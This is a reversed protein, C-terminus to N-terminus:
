SPAASVNSWQLPACLYDRRDERPECSVPAFTVDSLPSRGIDVLAVGEPFSSTTGAVGLGMEGRLFSLRLFTIARAAPREDQDSAPSDPAGGILPYEAGALSRRVCRPIIPAGRGSPREIKDTRSDQSGIRMIALGPEKMDGLCLDVQKGVISAIKSGNIREQM